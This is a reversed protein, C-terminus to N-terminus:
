AIAITVLTAILPVFVTVVGPDKCADRPKLGMISLLAVVSGSHALPDLGGSESSTGCARASCCGSM